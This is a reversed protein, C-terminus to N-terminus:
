VVPLVTYVTAGYFAVGSAPSTFLTIEHLNGNAGLIQISRDTAITVTALGSNQFANEGIIVVSNPIAISTLNTCGNFATHGISTVSNGITVSTLTSCSYFALDGISTVSNPIVVSTM